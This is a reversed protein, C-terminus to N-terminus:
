NGVASLLARNFAPLDDPTRSSILKGDQVVEADEWKAGANVLDDKLSPFSTLRRGKIVGASILLWAGHCIVAIPKEGEAAAKVIRQAMPHMRIADANVVGGPLVVADFVDMEKEAEAFTIDVDFRDGKEDHNMAQIKGKTASVIVARGGAERIAQAPSELEAQEFGDVALIAVTLDKSPTSM